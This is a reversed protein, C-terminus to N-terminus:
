VERLLLVDNHIGLAPTVNVNVFRKKSIATTSKILMTTKNDIQHLSNADGIYKCCLQSLVFSFAGNKYNLMLLFSQVVM